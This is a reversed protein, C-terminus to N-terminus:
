RSSTAGVPGPDPDSIAQVQRMVGSWAVSSGALLGLSMFVLRNDTLDGSIQANLFTNVFLMTAVLTAPGAWRRRAWASGLGLALVAILLILGVVGLEALTELFLNHPYATADPRGIMIPFAGIGAGVIPSKSWVEWASAFFDLRGAASAGGREQALLVFLRRITVGAYGSAVLAVVAVAALLAIVSVPKIHRGIRLIYARHRRLLGWGVLAPVLITAVGALLPGRGGAELMVWVFFVVVGLVVWRSGAWREAVLFHVFLVAVAPGLTRGVGLYHGGFTTVFGVDSGRLVVVVSEIAMWMGFAVIATFFRQLRVPDPGIIIAPAIMAWFVVTALLLTKYQAYVVGPSWVLSVLAWLIFAMMGLLLALVPRHLTGRRRLLIIVGQAVTIAFLLATIDVPVWAFRPDAKFRGAFLFLTFIVEFSLPNKAIASASLPVWGAVSGSALSRMGADAVAGRVGRTQRHGYSAVLRRSPTGVTNLIVQPARTFRRRVPWRWHRDLAPVRLGRWGQVPELM